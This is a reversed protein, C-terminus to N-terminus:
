VCVIPSLAMTSATARKEYKQFFLSGQLIVAPLKM